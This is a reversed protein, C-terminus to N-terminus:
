IAMVYADAYYDKQELATWDTYAIHATHATSTCGLAWRTGLVRGSGSM